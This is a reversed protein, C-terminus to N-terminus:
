ATVHIYDFTEMQEISDSAFFFGLLMYVVQKCTVHVYQVIFICMQHTNAISYNIICAYLKNLFM